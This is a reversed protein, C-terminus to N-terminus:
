KKWRSKRFIFGAVVFILAILISVGYGIDGFSALNAGIIIGLSIGTAMAQNIVTPSKHLDSM